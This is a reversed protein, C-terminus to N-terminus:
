KNEQPKDWRRSFSKEKLIETYLKVNIWLILINAITFLCGVIVVAVLTTM